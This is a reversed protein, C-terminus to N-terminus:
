PSARCRTSNSWCISAFRTLPTPAARSRARMSSKRSATGMAMLTKKETTSGMTIPTRRIRDLRKRDGAAVEWADPLGDRDTDVVETTNDAKGTLGAGSGRQGCGVILLSLLAILGLGTHQM